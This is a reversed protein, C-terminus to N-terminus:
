VFFLYDSGHEEGIRYLKEGIDNIQKSDEFKRFLVKAVELRKFKQKNLTRTKELYNNWGNIDNKNKTYEPVIENIYKVFSKVSRINTTIFGFIRHQSTHANSTFVSSNINKLVLKM